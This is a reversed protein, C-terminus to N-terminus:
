WSPGEVIFPLVLCGLIVLMSLSPSLTSPSAGVVGDDPLATRTGVGLVGAVSDPANLSKSIRFRLWAISRYRSSWWIVCCSTLANIWPLGLSEPAPSNHSQMMAVQGLRLRCFTM